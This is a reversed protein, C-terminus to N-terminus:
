ESQVRRSRKSLGNISELIERSKKTRGGKGEGKKWM